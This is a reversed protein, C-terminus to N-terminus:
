EPDIGVYDVSNSVWDNEGPEEVDTAKVTITHTGVEPFNLEVDWDGNSEISGEEEGLLVQLPVGGTSSGKVIYDDNIDIEQNPTPDTITISSLPM